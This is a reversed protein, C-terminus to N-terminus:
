SMEFRWPVSTTPDITTNSSPSARLDSYRRNTTRETSPCFSTAAICSTM